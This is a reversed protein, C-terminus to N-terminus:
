QKTVITTDNSEAGPAVSFYRAPSLVIQDLEVGDERVQIRITHMGTTAFTVATPQSLWYASNKWGWNQLSRPSASAALNVLLASTSNIRYMPSGGVLADSLQVWVSDNGKNDSGAKLRFWLRYQKGAEASFTVDVYDQPAALPADPYSINRDPTTLKVGNPSLSDSATQWSGRRTIAAADSAYVVVDGSTTPSPPPPLPASGSGGKVAVSDFTSTNLRTTDHSTVALGAYPAAGFSVSTSGVQTWASGDRSIHGTVTSGSKVLRLWVPPSQLASSVNGTTMGQASRSILEILGGPSINLLVHASGTELGARIMIGAKAYPHTNQISTVRAVVETNSNLPEYVFRFSDSTNYINAGSGVVTFTGSSYSANGALGVAGVDQTLWPTPISGGTPASATTFSWVPGTSSGASNRALVRWYYTTGATVAAPSYSATSLASAATPPPNTTGFSVDYSTAGIASWTLSAATSVATAGNAPTPSSPTAPPQTASGATFSVNDFTAVNLLSTNRSTVALGVLVSSAMSINASGVVSWSSGNPSVSAVITSGSRALRVWAPPPQTGVGVTTSSGGTTRALFEIGGSPNMSILTHRSGTALSERIMVGAKATANTNLRATVRAV